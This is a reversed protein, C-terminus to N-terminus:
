GLSMSQSQQDNHEGASIATATNWGNRLGVDVM